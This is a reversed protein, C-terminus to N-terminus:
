GCTIVGLSELACAMKSKWAGLASPSTEYAPRPSPLSEKEAMEIVNGTRKRNSSPGHACRVDSQRSISNLHGNASPAKESAARLEGYDLSLFLTGRPSLRSLNIPSCAM